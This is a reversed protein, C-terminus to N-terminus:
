DEFLLKGVQILLRSETEADELIKAAEKEAEVIIKVTEIASM